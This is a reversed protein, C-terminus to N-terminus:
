IAVVYTEHYSFYTWRFRLHSIITYPRTIEMAQKLQPNKLAMMSSKFPFNQLQAKSEIM